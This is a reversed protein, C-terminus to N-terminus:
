ARIILRHYRKNLIKFKVSYKVPELTTVKSVCLQCLEQSLSPHSPPYENFTSYVKHQSEKKDMEVHM